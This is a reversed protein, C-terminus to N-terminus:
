LALRNDLNNSVPLLSHTRSVCVSLQKPLIRHEANNKQETPASEPGNQLEVDARVAALAQRTTEAADAM